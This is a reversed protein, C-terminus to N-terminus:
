RPAFMGHVGPLTTQQYRIQGCHCCIYPLTWVGTMGTVGAILHWCHSHGTAATGSDM